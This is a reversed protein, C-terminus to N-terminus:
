KSDKTDLGHPKNKNQFVNLSLWNLIPWIKDLIPFKEAWTDKLTMTIISAVTVVTSMEKWYPCGMFFAVFGEM